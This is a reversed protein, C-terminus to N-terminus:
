IKFCKWDGLNVDDGGCYTAKASKYKQKLNDEWLAESSLM